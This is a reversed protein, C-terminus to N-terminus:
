VEISDIRIQTYPQRHGRLRRYKNRKKFKFVMVKDGKGHEVVSGVARAGEVYPRGATLKGDGFVALLQDFVVDEAVDADLKEVRIVDGETVKYQKGGTELIAFM